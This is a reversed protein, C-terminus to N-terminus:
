DVSCYSHCKLKFRDLVNMAEYMSTENNFEKQLQDWGKKLSRVNKTFFTTGNYHDTLDYGSIDPKNYDVRYVIRCKSNMLENNTKTM